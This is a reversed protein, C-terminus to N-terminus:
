VRNRPALGRDCPRVRSRLAAVEDRLERLESGAEVTRRAPGLEVGRVRAAFQLSCLSEAADAAGPAVAVLMLMKSNGSLSDQVDEFTHETRACGM